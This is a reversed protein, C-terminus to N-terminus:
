LRKKPSTIIGTGQRFTRSGACTTAACRMLATSDIIVSHLYRVTLREHTVNQPAFSHMLAAGSKEKHKTRKSRREHGDKRDRKAPRKRKDGTIDKLDYRDERTKHRPRREFIESLKKSPLQESISAQSTASSPPDNKKGRIPQKPSEIEDDSDHYINENDTPGDNEALELYSSSSSERRRRKRQHDRDRSGADLDDRQAKFNRFPAHLGLHEAFGPDGPRPELAHTSLTVRQPGPPTAITERRSKHSKKRHLRKKSRDGEHNAFLSEPPQKEASVAPRAFSSPRRKREHRKPPSNAPRPRPDASAYQLWDRIAARPSQRQDASM